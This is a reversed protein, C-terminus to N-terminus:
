QPWATINGTAAAAAIVNVNTGFGSVYTDDDQQATWGYGLPNKQDADPRNLANDFTQTEGVALPYGSSSGSTTPVSGDLTVYIVQTSNNEVVITPYWTATQLLPVASTATSAAITNALTM